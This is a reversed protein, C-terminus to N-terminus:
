IEKAVATHTAKFGLRSYFDDLPQKHNYSAVLNVCGDQKATREVLDFMKSGVGANRYKHQLYYMTVTCWNEEYAPCRGVFFMVYGVVKGEDRVTIVKGSELYTKNFDPTKNGFDEWHEKSLEDFNEINALLDLSIVLDNM